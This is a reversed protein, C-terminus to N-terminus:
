IEVRQGKCEASDYCARVCALAAVGEALTALNGSRPAGSILACFAEILSVYCANIDLSVSDLLSTWCRTEASYLDVKCHEPAKGISRWIVTGNEGIVECGRQKIKQLYDLHIEARMGNQHITNIAAYDEAAIELASIKELQASVFAIPGFLHQLYDIEHICDMTVGGGTERQVVYLGRYDVGPRMSPLDNGFHARAFLPKGISKLGEKLAMVAQHARMNSVVFLRDQAQEQLGAAEALSLCVPKEVLIKARECIRLAKLATEYHLHTPLAIIVGDPQQSLAEELDTFSRCQLSEALVKAKDEEHDCVLVKSFAAANRAHRQGISGCGIILIKM